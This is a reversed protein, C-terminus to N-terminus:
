DYNMNKLTITFVTGSPTNTHIEMSGNLIHILQLVLHLGMGYKQLLLKESDINQHLSTYYEIQSPSMGCGTDSVTIATNGEIVTAGIIICGDPTFKVANDLLNHIIVSLTNRNIDLCIGPPVRNIITTGSMAAIENFLRKKECILGYLPYPVEEPSRHNSYIDAYERLTLTFHYLQSSSKYISTLIRRLRDKDDTGHDLMDQVTHAVFKIPTTIDHTITGILKKQQEIENKLRTKTHELSEVTVSLKRTRADIIDELIRNKKRLMRTRMRILLIILLVAALGCLCRFVLTQYFYPVVHIRIKRCVFTDNDSTLMKLTFVHNGPPLGSVSFKMDPELNEWRDNGRNLRIVVNSRNAFYPVDVFVAAEQVTQELTINGSFRMEKGDAVYREVYFNGPYLSKTELPNFFVLGKLSPLVFDGDPLMSGCINSGGNFENTNFGADKTYTYYCVETNRDAAYRLLREERIKYLGNNTPIWFFRHRDEMLTHPSLLNRDPDAPMRILRDNKLLYFGKGLTLIWINGDRSRIINRVFLHERPAIPKKIFTKLSVRELGDVTGILLSGNSKFLRTPERHLPIKKEVTGFSTGKYVLLSGGTFERLAPRTVAYYRERDYLFDVFTTNARAALSRTTFSSRKLYRYLRGSDQLIINRERDHAMFYLGDTGFKKNNLLGNRGYVEGQPTIVASNGYPLTAYFVSGCGAEKRTSVFQSFQLIQLGDISSGLYLQRFASDYYICTLYQPDLGDVVALRTTTLRGERCTLRYITRNRVIFVTNNVQSWVVKSAPDSLLPVEFSSERRGNVIRNIKKSAYDIHYLRDDLTFVAIRSNFAATLKLMRDGPISRHRYVLSSDTIFYDGEKLKLYFPVGQQPHYNYSVPAPAQHHRSDQRYRFGFGRADALVKATRRHLLVTQSGSGAAISDSHRNGYFFTFRQNHVPLDKYGSFALGDYRVIGNETTLWIFGYRDKVIDKVSNQPLGNDTSYHRVTYEQSHVPLFLLLFPLFLIKPFLVYNKHLIVTIQYWM